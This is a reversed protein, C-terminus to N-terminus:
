EFVVDSSVVASKANRHMVRGLYNSRRILKKGVKAAAEERKVWALLERVISTLKKPGRVLPCKQGSTRVEDQSYCLEPVCPSFAMESFPFALEVSLEKGTLTRNSSVIEVLERKETTTGSDYTQLASAALELARAVSDLIAGPNAELGALRERKRTQDALVSEKAVVFTERDVDGDVFATTLGILRSRISGLDRRLARIGEEATGRAALTRAEIEQRLWDLEEPKFRLRAVLARLRESIAEERVTRSPCGQRHCRYYVHGKQREGVLQLSCHGCRFLGRFLYDHNSKGRVAKGALRAQVLDFLSRSVLPEHKGPFTEGTSPLDMLGTYFHNHLLEALRAKHVKGGGGTRLGRKYLEHALSALSHESSSYLEFAERILPAMVPDREKPKGPGSNRYGTPARFPYIGQRLRGLHGKRTEDSLNRIYDTAVVAQIDAALRGGRTNLDLSEHAFHVMGEDIFENLDAWDRLNRASRDIKHIILGDAHGKRLRSLVDRFVPRGQKAATEKEEFWEIMEIKHREAYRRIAERQEALSVGAGQKATSVRVYGFCRNM